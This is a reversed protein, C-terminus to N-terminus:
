SENDAPTTHFLRHVFDKVKDLGMFHHCENALEGVMEKLHWIEKELLDHKEKQTM